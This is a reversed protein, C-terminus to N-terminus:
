RVQTKLATVEVDQCARDTEVEALRELAKREQPRPRNIKGVFYFSVSRFFPRIFHLIVGGGVVHRIFHFFFVSALIVQKSCM